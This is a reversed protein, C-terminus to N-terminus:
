DVLAAAGIMGANNGLIATEVKPIFSFNNAYCNKKVLENVPGTLNKGENCIGGSLLIVDPRFINIFDVIGDSLYGIYEEVVRTGTADGMEKALFATKGDVKTLDGQCIEHIKSSPDLLAAEKTQRILATASAYAELCGMRGCTCAAGGRVLMTHGLEAGGAHGGEFIKGESVIGGGVGTGLTLLVANNINKAAGAKVEGLAACNADNSVRVKFPLLKMLEAALPADHWNLNNSYAVVGTASDISGPSGIGVGIVEDYSISQRKLLDLVLAAMDKVIAEFGRESGTPVSDKLLIQYSEDMIGAKINTGGLDVGIRYM